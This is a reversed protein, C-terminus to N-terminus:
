FEPQVQVLEEQSIWVKTWCMRCPSSDFCATESTVFSIALDKATVRLYVNVTPSPNNAESKQKDAANTDRMQEAKCTNKSRRCGIVGKVNIRARASHAHILVQGFPYSQM